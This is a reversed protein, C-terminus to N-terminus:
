GNCHRILADPLDNGLLFLPKHGVHDANPGSEWINQWLGAGLLSLARDIVRLSGLSAVLVDAEELHGLQTCM